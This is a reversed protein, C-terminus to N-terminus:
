TRGESRPAGPLPEPLVGYSALQVRLQAATLKALDRPLEDIRLPRTGQRAERLQGLMRPSACIVIRDAGSALRDLEATIAVAFEADFKAMHDDRHDDFTYGHDGSHNASPGSDSFVASPRTRRVPNVLDSVEGLEDRLGEPGSTREFQFLRARSADVIAITVRYM